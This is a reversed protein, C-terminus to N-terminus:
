DAGFRHGASLSGKPVGVNFRYYQNGARGSIESPKMPGLLEAILADAHSRKSLYRALAFACADAVPLVLSAEKEVFLPDEVIRTLPLFRHYETSLSDLIYRTRMIRQMSRIASKTDTQNELIMTALKRPKMETRMFQETVIACVTFARGHRESMAERGTKGIDEEPINRCWGMVVTLRELKPVRLIAHLIEFRKERPWKQEDEFPKSGHFLAKASIAMPEPWPKPIMVNAIELMHRQVNMLQRDADVCVGAVVAIPDGANIGAEDLYVFHTLNNGSLEAGGLACMPLM